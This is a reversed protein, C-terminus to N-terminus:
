SDGKGGCIKEPVINSSASIWLFLCMVALVTSESGVDLPPNFTATEFSESVECSVRLNDSPTYSLM